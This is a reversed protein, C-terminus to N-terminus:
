NSKDLLSLKPVSDLKTANEKEKSYKKKLNNKM